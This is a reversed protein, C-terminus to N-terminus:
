IRVVTGSPPPTPPPPLLGWARLWPVSFHSTLIYLQGGTQDKWILRNQLYFCFNETTMCSIGFWGFLLDVTCHYTGKLTGQRLLDKLLSYFKYLRRYMFFSFASKFCAFTRWDSGPVLLLVIEFNLIIGLHSQLHRRKNLVYWTDNM